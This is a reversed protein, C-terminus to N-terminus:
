AVTIKKKENMAKKIKKVIIGHNQFTAVLGGTLKVGIRDPGTPPSYDIKNGALDTMDGGMTLLLANGACIDWKKIATNHIYADSERQAVSLAKYGAGGAATVKSNEGFASAALEKVAGQHSRSVIINLDNFDKRDSLTKFGPIPSRGHGKWAWVTVDEFPKHIVGIVPQGKHAVCVMTTVYQRLDETYEKTADLPDIWVTVDDINVDSQFTSGLKEIVDTNDLNIPKIDGVDPVESSKEESVIKVEPFMKLLSFYMQEHSLMDGQTVPDNVGEKTKGKSKEGLDKGEKVRKVMVGGRKAAEISAILLNVLSVTQTDGSRSGVGYTDWMYIIVLMCSLVTLLISVKSLRINSGLMMKNYQEQSQKIM